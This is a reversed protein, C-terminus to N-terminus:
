VQRRLGSAESGTRLTSITVILDMWGCFPMGTTQGGVTLTGTIPEGPEIRLSILVPDSAEGSASCPGQQAPGGTENPEHM